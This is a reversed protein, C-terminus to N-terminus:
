RAFLHMPTPVPVTVSSVPAPSEWGPPPSVYVHAALPEFHDTFADYAPVVSRDEGLVHIERAGLGPALVSADVPASTTNVAVVYTAGNLTRAGVRVVGQSTQAELEDSLLAPALEHIESNLQRIEVGVAPVWEHPFYGIGDAGGAIALWTEARVTTPTVELAPASCDMGRVEIWQFMPKGKSLADLERQADYVAFLKDAQCWNQLPYLDFGVVDALGVLSPYFDRGQDLPAAGTYFHNTLTLFTLLGEPPTVSASQVMSETIPNGLRADLEDPYYWGILGPSDPLQTGVDAVTYARNGVAESVPHRSPQCGDGVFLNIGDDIRAPVFNSCEALLALPFFPKDRLMITDGDASVSPHEASRDDPPGTLVDVGTTTSRGWADTAQLSLHYLTSAGLNRFVTEHDTEWADVPPEWLTPMAGLGSAAQEKAPFNTQWSIDVASGSTRVSVDRIALNEAPPPEEPPQPPPEPPGPPPATKPGPRRAQATPKMPERPRPAPRSAPSAPEPGQFVAAPPAFTQAGGRPPATAPRTRSVKPAWSKGAGGGSHEIKGGVAPGVARRHGAHNPASDLALMVVGAVISLVGAAAAAVTPLRGRRARRLWEGLNRPDPSM